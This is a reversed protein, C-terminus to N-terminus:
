GVRGTMKEIMFRQTVRAAEKAKKKMLKPNAEGHTAALMRWTGGQRQSALVDTLLESAAAATLKGMTM